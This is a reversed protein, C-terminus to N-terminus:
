KREFQHGQRHEFRKLWVLASRSGINLNSGVHRNGSEFDVKAFIARVNAGCVARFDRDLNWLRRGRNRCGANLQRNRYPEIVSGDLATKVERNTTFLWSFRFRKLEYKWRDCRGTRKAKVFVSNLCVDTREEDQYRAIFVSGAFFPSLFGCFVQVIGDIYKAAFRGFLYGQD